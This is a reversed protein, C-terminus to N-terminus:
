IRAPSTQNATEPWRNRVDNARRNDGRKSYGPSQCDRGPSSSPSISRSTAFGPLPVPHLVRLGPHTKACLVDATTDEATMEYGNGLMRAQTAVVVAQNAQLMRNRLIQRAM